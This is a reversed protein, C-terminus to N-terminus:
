EDKIEAHVGVSALAALVLAISPNTPHSWTRGPRAAVDCVWGLDDDSCVRARLWGMLRWSEAPDGIFDPCEDNDIRRQDWEQYWPQYVPVRLREVADIDYALTWGLSKECVMRNAQDRTLQLTTM